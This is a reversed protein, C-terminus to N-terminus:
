LLCSLRECYFLSLLNTAQNCDRKNYYPIHLCSSHKMKLSLFLFRRFLVVERSLVFPEDGYQGRKPPEVTYLLFYDLRLTYFTTAFYFSCCIHIVLIMISVSLLSLSFSLSDSLSTPFYCIEIAEEIKDHSLDPADTM